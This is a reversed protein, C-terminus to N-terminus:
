GLSAEPVSQQNIYGLILSFSSKMKTVIVKRYPKYQKPKNNTKITQGTEEEINALYYQVIL